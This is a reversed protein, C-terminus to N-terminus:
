AWGRGAQFETTFGIDNARAVDVSSAVERPPLPSMVFSFWFVVFGIAGGVMFITGLTFLLFGSNQIENQATVARYMIAGAISVSGSLVMGPVGM